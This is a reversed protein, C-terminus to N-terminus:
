LFVLVQNKGKYSSAQFRIKAQPLVQQGGGNALLSAGVFVLVQNKGKYSSAQWRIKSRPLVRQGGGNALLSAGVFVLLVYILFALAQAPHQHGM